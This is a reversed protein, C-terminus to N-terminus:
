EPVVTRIAQCHNDWNNKRTAKVKALEDRVIKRLDESDNSRMVRHAQRLSKWANTHEHKAFYTETLNILCGVQSRIDDTYEYLKLARQFSEVAKTFQGRELHILGMQVELHGASDFIGTKRSLHLGERLFHLARDQEGLLRYVKAINYVLYIQNRNPTHLTRSLEYAQILIKLSEDWQGLNLLVAALGNMCKFRVEVSCKAAVDLAEKLAQLAEDYKANKNYAVGMLRLCECKMEPNSQVRQVRLIGRAYQVAAEFDGYMILDELQNIVDRYEDEQTGDNLLDAPRIGLRACLKELLDLSPQTDGHEIHSLMSRTCIGSALEQQTMHKDTRLKRLKDGIM